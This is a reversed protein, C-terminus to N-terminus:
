LCGNTEEGREKILRTLHDIEFYITRDLYNKFEYRNNEISSQYIKLIKIINRCLLKEIIRKM